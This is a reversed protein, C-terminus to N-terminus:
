PNDSPSATARTPKGRALGGVMMALAAGMVMALWQYLTFDGLASQVAPSCSIAQGVATKNYWWTHLSSGVLSWGVLGLFAGIQIQILTRGFWGRGTSGAADAMLMLM